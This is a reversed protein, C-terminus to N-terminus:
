GGVAAAAASMLRMAWESSDSGPQPISRLIQSPNLLVPTLHFMEQSRRESIPAQDTLLFLHTLQQLRTGAGDYFSLSSGLEQFFREAAQDPEEEKQPFEKVRIFSLLGGEFIQITLSQDLLYVFLFHGKEGVNKVIAPQFLNFAFFSSPAIQRVEIAREGDLMEYQEIVEKKVATALIRVDTQRRALVQYSFRSDGLPYLFTKEMHWQILREFDKRNKPVQQLDLLLTRVAADPLGLTLARLRRFPGLVSRVAERWRDMQLINKEVPSPHCVGRELPEVAGQRVEVGEGRQIVSAISLHTPGISLGIRDRKLFGM